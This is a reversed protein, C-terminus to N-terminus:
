IGLFKGFISFVIERVDSISLAYLVVLSPFIVFKILKPNESFFIIIRLADLKKGIDKIKDDINDINDLGAKSSIITHQLDIRKNTEEISLEVNSLKELIVEQRATSDAMKSMHRALDKLSFAIAEMTTELKVLKESHNDIKQRMYQSENIENQKYLNNV